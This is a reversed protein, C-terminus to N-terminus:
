WPSLLSWENRLMNSVSSVRKSNIRKEILKYASKGSYRDEKINKFIRRHHIKVNRSCIILPEIDKKIIKSNVSKISSEKREQKNNMNNIGLKKFYRKAIRKNIVLPREGIGINSQYKTNIYLGKLGSRNNNGFKALMSKNINKVFNNAFTRSQRQQWFIQTTRKLIKNNYRNSHVSFFAQNCNRNYKNSLSSQCIRNNINLKPKEMLNIVSILKQRRM